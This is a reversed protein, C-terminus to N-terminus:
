WPQGRSCDTLWCLAWFFKIARVPCGLVPSPSCLLGHIRCQQSGRSCYRRGRPIWRRHTKRLRLCLFRGVHRRRGAYDWHHLRASFQPQCRSVAASGIGLTIALDRLSFSGRPLQPEGIALRFAEALAFTAMVLLVFPIGDSLELLGLTFRQAGGMPDTGVTGLMLRALLTILSPLRANSGAFVVVCTM